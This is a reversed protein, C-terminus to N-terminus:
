PYTHGHPLGVKTLLLPNLPLAEMGALLAGDFFGGKLAHLSQPISLGFSTCTQELQPDGLNVSSQSPMITMSSGELLLTPACTPSEFGMLFAILTAPLIM